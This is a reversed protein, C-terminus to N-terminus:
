SAAWPTSRACPRARHAPRRARPAAPRLRPAASLRAHADASRTSSVHLACRRDLALQSDIDRAAGLLPVAPVPRAARDARRAARAAPHLLRAAQPRRRPLDAAADRRHRGREYMNYWWFLKACTFRPDRRRAPTGSRRATSWGTRSGGSGSRACTASTGATPSSATIARCAHRHHLTSQVTCTVAPTVTALPRSAGARALAALHPTDRGIHRAHARGRPDRSNSAHSGLPQWPRSPALIAISM